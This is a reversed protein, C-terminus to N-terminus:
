EKIGHDLACASWGRMFEHRNNEAWNAFRSEDYDKPFTERKRAIWAEEATILPKRQPPTTYVKDGKKLSYDGTFSYINGLKGTITIAVPEQEPEKPQPSVDGFVLPRQGFYPKGTSIEIQEVSFTEGDLWWAVPEPKRSVEEATPRTIGVPFFVDRGGLEPEQEPQALAEKIATHVIDLEDIWHWQGEIIHADDIFGKYTELAELALKLAETQTTM